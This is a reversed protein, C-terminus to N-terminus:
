EDNGMHVYTTINGYYLSLTIFHPWHGTDLGVNSPSDNSM